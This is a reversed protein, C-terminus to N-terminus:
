GINQILFRRRTEKFAERGWLYHFRIGFIEFFGVRGVKAWGIKSVSRLSSKNTALIIALVKSKGCKLAIDTWYHRLIAPLIGHGRLSPVVFGRWYYAENHAVKFERKYIPDVFKDQTVISVSAVIRGRHKAFCIREGGELKRLISSKSTHWEDVATLQNIGDDDAVTIEGFDLDVECTPLPPEAGNKNGYVFCHMQLPKLFLRDKIRNVLNAPGDTKLITIARKVLYIFPNSHPIAVM